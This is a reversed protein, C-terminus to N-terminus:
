KGNVGIVKGGYGTLELYGEATVPNTGCKGEGRVAGEWYAFPSLVLEQDKLKPTLSLTLKQSPISVEIIAPYLGGTHPSKWNGQPTIELDHLDTVLGQQNRLTGSLFATKGESNRIRFLMLDDGNSLHLGSWDWGAEGSELSNTAWEHDFWVLGKVRHQKGDLTVSGSARLRTLSYYHSAHGPTSSKPSIGNAGHILPPRDQTLILDVSREVGAETVGESKLHFSGDSLQELLWNEMWAMRSGAKDPTGFGAEGFAGRSSRQYYRFTKGSVDTFAFHAFPLDMVRFRSSGTPKKGPHIGQRFFTLQFGYEHGQEDTLNGTAYWWETKFDRHPGHDRPFEYNWGPQSSKWAEDQTGERARLPFSAILALLCLARVSRSM